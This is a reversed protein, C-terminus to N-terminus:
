KTRRMSHTGYTDPDLGISKVWDKLIRAYQRTSIHPLNKFRSQFLFDDYRLNAKEIGANLHLRFLHHIDMPLM